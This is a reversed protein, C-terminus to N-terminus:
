HAEKPFPSELGKTGKTVSPFEVEKWQLSRLGVQM